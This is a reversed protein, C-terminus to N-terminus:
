QRTVGDLHASVRAFSTVGDIRIEFGIFGEMLDTRVRTDWHIVSVTTQNVKLDGRLTLLNQGRDSGSLTGRLEGFTAAASLDTGNKTITFRMPGATGTQLIGRAKSCILEDMSGSGASCQDVIYRGSWSGSMNPEVNFTEAASLGQATATVIATGRGAAVLREGVVAIVNPDSSTWTAPVYQGSGDTFQAFAGLTAGRSPFPGSSTIESSGGAIMTGGGVPTITLKSATVPPPDPATPLEDVVGHACRASMLTLLAIGVFRSRLAM